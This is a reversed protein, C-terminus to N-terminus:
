GRQYSLKMVMDGTMDFRYEGVERFGYRAYFRRGIHNEKFVDLKLDGYLCVAHDMLARGYGKGIHDPDLFIAGVEVDTPDKTILGIFGIVRGDQVYVWTETNPLYLDRVMTRVKALTEEDLFPHALKNARYWVDLVPELDETRYQRIM